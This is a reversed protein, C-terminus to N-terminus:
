VSLRVEVGETYGSELPRLIVEHREEAEDSDLIMVDITLEIKEQREIKLRWIFLRKLIRRFVGGCLWCFAKFFRKVQHSCVMEELSNEIVATYGADGKLQDFYTLHQSTEDYL